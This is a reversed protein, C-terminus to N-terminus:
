PRAEPCWALGNTGPDANPASAGGWARAAAFVDWEALEITSNIVPRANIDAFAPATGSYLGNLVYITAQPAVARVSKAEPLNSVFFTKCGTNWLAGAIPAIGCGYADARM